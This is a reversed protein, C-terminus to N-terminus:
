QTAEPNNPPQGHEYNDIASFDLPAETELGPLIWIEGFLDTQETRVRHHRVLELVALRRIIRLRRM